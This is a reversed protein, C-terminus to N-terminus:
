LQLVKRVLDAQRRVDMKAHAAKLHSRVTELAVGRHAAIAPLDHGEALLRATAAESATLGFAERLAAEDIAPAGRPAVLLVGLGLERGPRGVPRVQLRGAAGEGAGFSLECAQGAAAAKLATRFAAARAGDGPTLRGETLTLAPCAKVLEAADGRDVCRGSPDCVAAALGSGRLHELLYDLFRRELRLQRTLADELTAALQRVRGAAALDAGQLRLAFTEGDAAHLTVAFSAAPDAAAGDQPALALRPYWAGGAAQSLSVGAAGALAAIAGLAARWEGAALAEIISSCAPDPPATGPARFQVVSM